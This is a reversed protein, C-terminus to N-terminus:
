VLIQKIYWKRDALDINALISIVRDASHGDGFPNELNNVKKQYAKDFCAKKLSKVIQVVDHKVFEVNGANLRGKQRNGINVVPLKYYPAELIGMSSNGILTKCNRMVNVFYETPINKYFRIFSKHEYPKISNLIDFSGPDTNPYIGITKFGTEECFLQVAKLTTEMQKFTSEKESSLPHKLLVIYNGDSIDFQLFESLEKLSKQPISLINDFAPNGVNFVRFSEEGIKELNKAYLEAGTLHVHALQSVAFRIPDDSNGFVPDGGGYHVVLVDMYNGVLATAISEERDGIVIMMDPQEREVTQSLGVTLMGVGKVRQTNRNTTILSDICDAIVFGDSKIRDVTNGHWDSLHAGSIVLKLEFRSDRNLANIIPYLIDYESRIGTVALIKIKEM